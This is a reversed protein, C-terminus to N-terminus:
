LGLHNPGDALEGGLYGQVFLAASLGFLIVRLVTRSDGGKSAIAALAVGVVAIATGNWRHIQMPADGGFWLGTHIWGFLAALVAGAAGGYIMIRVASNLNQSPRAIAFAETLAAMLFLAIPFHVTAPHLKKLVGLLGGPESAEDQSEANDYADGTVHSAASRVSPNAMDGDSAVEAAAASSNSSAKESTATSTNENGGHANDGHAQLPSASVFVAGLLALLTKWNSMLV